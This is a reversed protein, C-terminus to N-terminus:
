SCPNSWLPDWKNPDKIGLINTQFAFTGRYWHPVQYERGEDNEESLSSPLCSNHSPLYIPPSKRSQGLGWRQATEVEWGPQAAQNFSIEMEWLWQTIIVKTYTASIDPWSAVRWMGWTMSSHKTSLPCAPAPSARAGAGGKRDKCRLRTVKIGHAETTQPISVTVQGSPQPSWVSRACTRRPCLLWGATSTIFSVLYQSIPACSTMALTLLAM